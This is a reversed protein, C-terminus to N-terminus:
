ERQARLRELLDLSPHGDEALGNIKQYSRIAARTLYGIIGDVAGTGFGRAYLREQLEERESRALAREDAPWPAFIGPAGALRDALHGAALAYLTANNYGLIAAFNRAVLFAPGRAGAPLLLRLNSYTAPWAEGTPRTLGLGKWFALPRVFAPSSYAFDFSQPLMVEFGWPEGRRWGAAALYRAASALADAPSTWVNRRGDGDFDVALRIYTTPMFQTHGMAGAWSGVLAAPEVDRHELIELAALLEKRWYNTRRPDEIALTALSRIVPRAGIAAGFKSEIGWIAVLVHRDVGYRQEISALLAQYEALKARGAEIRAESVVAGLYDGPTEVHEPQSGALKAVDVDRDLGATARDFTAARIGRAMAETRLSAIFAALELDAASPQAQATRLPAVSLLAAILAAGFIKIARNGL